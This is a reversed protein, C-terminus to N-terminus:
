LGSERIVVASAARWFQLALSEKPAEIRVVGRLVQRRPPPVTGADLIVRYVAGETVLRGDADRRTAISGGYDSALYPEALRGTNVTDIAAVRLTVPRVDLDDAYFLAAAGPKIRHLLDDSALGHVTALQSGVITLLPQGRPLWDGTGINEAIDMGYGDIPAVVIM